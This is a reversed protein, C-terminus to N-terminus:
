FGGVGIAYFVFAFIGVLSLSLFVVCLGFAEVVDVVSFVWAASEVPFFGVSCVVCDLAWSIAGCDM